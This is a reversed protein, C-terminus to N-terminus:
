NEIQDLFFANLKVLTYLFSTRSLDSVVQNLNKTSNKLSLNRTKCSFMITSNDACLLLKSDLSINISMDNVFYPFPLSGLFM